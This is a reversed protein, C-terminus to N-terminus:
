MMPLVEAFFAARTSNPFAKRARDRAMMHDPNTVLASGPGLWFWAEFVLLLPASEGTLDRYKNCAEYVLLEIPDTRFELTGDPDRDAHKFFNQAEQLRHRSAASADPRVWAPIQEKLMPAGGRSCNIGRLIEYAASILTHISVPDVECFYLRVATEIQRRAADLKSIQITAM